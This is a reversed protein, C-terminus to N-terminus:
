FKFLSYDCKDKNLTIGAAQIRELVATLRTNHEKQDKGFILISDTLCLVGTLGDLITNMRKQFYEPASSIGFPIKNFCYRGFSTIFTTLKCSDKLLPM